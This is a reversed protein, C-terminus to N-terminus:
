SRVSFEGFCDFSCGSWRGSDRLKTYSLVTQLNCDPVIECYADDNEFHYCNFVGYDIQGESNIFSLTRQIIEYSNFDGEIELSLCQPSLDLQLNFKNLLEQVTMSM